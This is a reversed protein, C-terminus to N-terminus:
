HALRDAEIQRLEHELPARVCAAHRNFSEIDTLAQSVVTMLQRASDERPSSPPRAKSWDPLPLESPADGGPCPSAEMNAIMAAGDANLGTSQRDGDDADGDIPLPPCLYLIRICERRALARINDRVRDAQGDLRSLTQNLRAVRTAPPVYNTVDEADLPAFISAAISTLKPPLLDPQRQPHAEDTRPSPQLSM